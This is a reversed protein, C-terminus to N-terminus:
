LIIALRYYLESAMWFSHFSLLAFYTVFSGVEFSTCDFGEIGNLRGISMILFKGERGYRRSVSIGVSWCGGGMLLVLYGPSQRNLPPHVFLELDSRRWLVHDILYHTLDASSLFLILGSASWLM